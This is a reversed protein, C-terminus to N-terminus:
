LGYEKQKRYLTRLGIGLIKAAKQKDYGTARLTAEVARREIEQMSMGVTVNLDEGSASRQQRLQIPLDSVELARKGQAYVIMEEITNRLERVNGPWDHHMFRDAAGRTIGTVRRGHERNFEKVFTEVLLPIDEKRERLPPVDIQIVRLRYYLDERFEDRAALVELRRNTAAIVRVDVKVTENGGVREFQRDQLVRLLKTQVPPPIESIEDVFLTGQDALEFRGKRQQDAGTFAGKEHGFLESEIISASLEACHLKVFRENRRPSLQHIAQAILEKGTGTEGYILVTARTPAIQVIKSGLEQMVRSNGTLNPVKLRQDLRETLDSVRSVLQQHSLARQIVALLKQFNLPRLQFDYAGERMAETALEVTGGDAILIVCVEPNRSKAIDLLRMGDVRHAKLETILIEPVSGDSVGAAEPAPRDLLNFAQEGDKAWHVEFGNETLFSVLQATESSDKDVIM